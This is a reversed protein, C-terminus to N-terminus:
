LVIDYDKSLQKRAQKIKRSCVCTIIFRKVGEVILAAGTFIIVTAFNSFMVASGLGATIVSVVFMLLWGKMHARGCYISDAMSAVSDIVIFVGLVVTLISQVLSPYVLCFIGLILTAAASMVLHEGLFREYVIYRITLAISVLILSVGLVICLADGSEDPLVICLVGIAISLLSIIISDWKLKKFWNKFKEM